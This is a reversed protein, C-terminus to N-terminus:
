AEQASFAELAVHGRETLQDVANLTILADDDVVLLTAGRGKIDTQLAILGKPRRSRDAIRVGKGAEVMCRGLCSFHCLQTARCIRRASLDQCFHTGDERGIPLTWEIQSYPITTM